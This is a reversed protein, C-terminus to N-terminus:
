TDDYAKLTRLEAELSRRTAPALTETRLEAEIKMIKSMAPNDFMSVPKNYDNIEAIYMGISGDDSPM